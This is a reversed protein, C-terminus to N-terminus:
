ARTYGFSRRFSTLLPLQLYCTYHGLNWCALMKYFSPDPFCQTIISVIVICLCVTRAEKAGLIIDDITEVEVASTASPPDTLPLEEVTVSLDSLNVETDLPNHIALDIWFTESVFQSYKMKRLTHPNVM